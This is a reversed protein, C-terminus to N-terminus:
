SQKEQNIAPRESRQMCAMILEILPAQSPLELDLGHTYNYHHAARLHGLMQVLHHAANALANEREAAVFQAAALLRAHRM